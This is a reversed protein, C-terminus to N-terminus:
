VTPPENGHFASAVQEQTLATFPLDSSVHGRANTRRLLSGSLFAEEKKKPDLV